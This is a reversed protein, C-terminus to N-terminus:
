ESCTLEFLLRCTDGRSSSRRRATASGAARWCGFSSRKPSRRTEIGTDALAQVKHVTGMAHERCVCGRAATRVWIEATRRGLPERNAGHPTPARVSRDGCRRAPSLQGSVVRGQETLDLLADTRFAHAHHQGGVLRHHQEVPVDALRNEGALLPFAPAGPGDVAKRVVEPLRERVHPSERGAVELVHAGEGRGPALAFDHLLHKCLDGPVVVDGQQLLKAVLPNAEPVGGLCALRSSGCRARRESRSGAARADPCRRRWNGASAAATRSRDAVCANLSGYRNSKRPVASGHVSRSSSCRRTSWM